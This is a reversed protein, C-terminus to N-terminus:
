GRVLERIATDFDEVWGLCDEVLVSIGREAHEVLVSPVYAVLYPNHSERGADEVMAIWTDWPPCNHLDFFGDSEQEAAGDTLEEDPFYILLRGERPLNAEVKEILVRHDICVATARVAAFYDKELTRPRTEPRRLSGAPDGVDVKEQCWSATVALRRWFPAASEGLDPFSRLIRGNLPSLRADM